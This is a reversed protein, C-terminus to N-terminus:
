SCDEKSTQVPEPAQLSVQQHLEGKRQHEQYWTVVITNEFHLIKEM